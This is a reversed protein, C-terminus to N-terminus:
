NIAQALSPRIQPVEAAGTATISQSASRLIVSDVTAQLLGESYQETLPPPQRQWLHQRRATMLMHRTASPQLTYSPRLLDRLARRRCDLLLGRATTGIYVEAAATKMTLEVVEM